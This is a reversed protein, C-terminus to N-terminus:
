AEPLMRFGQEAFHPDLTLATQIALERMVSFSLCDVLSLDRRNAALVAKAAARHEEETAWHVLLVPAIVGELLRIAAMGFRRQLLAHTEVIVYNSAHLTEDSLLLEEWVQRVAGHEAAAVDVVALLASTDVYISM